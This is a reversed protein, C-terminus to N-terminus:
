EVPELIEQSPDLREWAGGALHVVVGTVLLLPLAAVVALLPLEWLTFRLDLGLHLLGLVAGVALVAPLGALVLALLHGIGLLLNQGIMSTGRRRELGLGVWGPLFLAALNQIAISLLAVAMGLILASALTLLLAMGPPVSAVLRAPLVRLEGRGSLVDGLVAAVLLGCGFLQMVLMGAAPALMEAM